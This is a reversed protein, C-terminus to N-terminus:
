WGSFRDTPPRYWHNPLPFLKDLREQDDKLMAPQEPNVEPTIEAAAQDSATAGNMSECELQVQKRLEEYRDWESQPFVFQEPDDVRVLGEGRREFEPLHSLMEFEVASVVTFGEPLARM